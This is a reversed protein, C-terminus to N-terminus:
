SKTKNSFFEDIQSLLQDKDNKYKNGLLYLVLCIALAIAIALCEWDSINLDNKNNSEGVKSIAIIFIILVSILKIGWGISMFLIRKAWDKFGSNGNKLKYYSVENLPYVAGFQVIKETELSDDELIITKKIIENNNM